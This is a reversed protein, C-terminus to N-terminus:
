TNDKKKNMNIIYIHLIFIIAFTTPLMSLTYWIPYYSPLYDENDDNFDIILRPDAILQDYRGQQLLASIRKLRELIEKQHDDDIMVNEEYIELFDALQQSLYKVSGLSVKKVTNHDDYTGYLYM